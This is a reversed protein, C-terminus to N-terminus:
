SYIIRSVNWLPWRLCIWNNKLFKRECESMWTTHKLLHASIICTIDVQFNFKSSSSTKLCRKNSLIHSSDLWKLDATHKCCNTYSSFAPTTLLVLASIWGSCVIPWGKFLFFFIWTWHRYFPSTKYILFILYKPPFFFYFM